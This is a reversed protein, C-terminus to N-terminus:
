RKTVTEAAWVLLPNEKGLVLVLLAVLIILISYVSM